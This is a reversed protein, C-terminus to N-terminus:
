RVSMGEDLHKILPYIFFEIIRRQGVKVEATVSLGSSLRQTKGDVTLDTKLPSIQLTYVPGLKQDERADKSVQLVKGPIIGYKQFDYTDVKIAVPMGAKVFGIDKNAVTAQVTLPTNVPVISLVKQAPTVVGGLTHIFLEHVYGDVPSVLNQRANKFSSEQINAKLQTIQKEKESLENLTTSKFNQRLYAMEERTQRQQFRLQELEHTLASLRHEATQVENQVREYEDKAIIDKVADLRVKKALNLGLSEQVQGVEVQKGQLQQDIGSLTQVKADLQKELASLSAAYLAAQTEDSSRYGGGGQGSAAKLRAEESQVHALSQQASQLQPATASPDIVVLTQGKKVYDGEKVLLQSVVGGNLPQILKVEGQPLVKGRASVVVDVQGFMSWLLFFAFVAMVLWFTLAGLPNGPDSEIEALIPQFEHADNSSDPKNSPKLLRLPM